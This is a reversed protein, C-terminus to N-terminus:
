DHDHNRDRHYERCAPRIELSNDAIDDKSDYNYDTCLADEYTNLYTTM